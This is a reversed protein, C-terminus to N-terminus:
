TRTCHGRRDTRVDRQWSRRSVGCVLTIIFQVTFPYYRWFSQIMHAVTTLRFRTKTILTVCESITWCTSQGERIRVPTRGRNLRCLPDTCNLTDVRSYGVIPYNPPPLSVERFIYEQRTANTGHKNPCSAISIKVLAPSIYM